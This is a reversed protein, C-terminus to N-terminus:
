IDINNGIGSSYFGIKCPAQLNLNFRQLGYSWLIRGSCIAMTFEWVINGYLVMFYQVTRINIINGYSVDVYIICM